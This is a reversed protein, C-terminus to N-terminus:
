LYKLMSIKLSPLIVRMNRQITTKPVGFNDHIATFSSKLLIKGEVSQRLAWDTYDGRGLLLLLYKRVWIYIQQHNYIEVMPTVWKEQIYELVTTANM